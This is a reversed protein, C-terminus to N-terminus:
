DNHGDLFYQWAAQESAGTEYGAQFAAQLWKTVIEPNIGPDYDNLDGFFRESRLSFNEIENFWKDFEKM